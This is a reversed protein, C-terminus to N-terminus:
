TFLYDSPCGGRYTVKQTGSDTQRDTWRDMQGDTQGDCVMDSSSYTMQDCNKTCKHLNTIDGPKKNMKKWTNIKQATLPTFPCFYGLISFLFKQGDCAMDWSCCLMQDNNKTCKHLLIIDGLMKKKWKKKIKIEQAKLTPPPSPIFPFFYRLTVFFETQQAGCRLFWADYKTTCLHLIIIDGATKKMKEFNPNKPNNTHYFPLFHGLIVIFETQWAEYRLFWVDCSQWKHYM